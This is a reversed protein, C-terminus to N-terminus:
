RSAYRCWWRHSVGVDKDAHVAANDASRASSGGFLFCLNWCLHSCSQFCPLTATMWPMLALFCPPPCCVQSSSLAFDADDGNTVRQKLWTFDSQMVSAWHVTTSIRAGSSFVVIDGPALTRNNGLVALLTSADPWSCRAGPGLEALTSTSFVLACDTSDGFGGRNTSTSFRVVLATFSSSFTVGAIRPPQPLTNFVGTVASREEFDFQLRYGAGAHIIRFETFNAYRNCLM